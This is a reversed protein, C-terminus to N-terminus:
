KVLIPDYEQNMKEAKKLIDDYNEGWKKYRPVIVNWFFSEDRTWYHNIRIKDILVESPCIDCRNGHTDIAWHNKRYVCFHPNPCHDVHLPQVITKSHKNWDDNWKMKMTLNELLSDGKELTKHSTGYCQWNICVGSADKYDRELLDTISEDSVPVIFEDTDILALWKTKRKTRYICDNYAGTQVTFSFNAWDNEKQVSPWQIIEVVGSDIWNKLVLGANGSSNNEYLYFHEVGKTYHYSVWEELYDEDNQFIACVCLKYKYEKSFLAFTICTFLALFYKM